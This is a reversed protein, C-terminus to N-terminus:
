RTRGCLRTAAAPPRWAADWDRVLLGEIREPTTAAEADLAALVADAAGGAVIAHRLGQLAREALALATAEDWLAARRWGLVLPFLRGARDQSPAAAGAQWFPEDLGPALLFGQAPQASLWAAGAAGAAAAREMTALCRAEWARRQGPPMRWVFDGHAPLKGGLFAHAGTM